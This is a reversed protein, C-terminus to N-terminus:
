SFLQKLQVTESASLRQLRNRPLVQRAAGVARGAIPEWSGHRGHQLHQRRLALQGAHSLRLLESM